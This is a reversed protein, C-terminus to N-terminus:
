STMMHVTLPLPRRFMSVALPKIDASTLVNSPEIAQRENSWCSLVRMVIVECHALCRRFDGAERNYVSDNIWVSILSFMLAGRWQGIHLSNVPSRHIRRLFLWNRPFHKWKIVDDHTKLSTLSGLPQDLYLYRRVLILIGSRGVTKYGCHSERYHCSSMKINSWHGAHEVLAM